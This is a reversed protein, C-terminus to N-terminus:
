TESPNTLYQLNWLPSNSFRHMYCANSLHSIYIVIKDAFRFRLSWESSRPMSPFINYQIQFLYLLFIHVPNM